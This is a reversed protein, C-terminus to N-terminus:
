GCCRGNVRWSRVLKEGCFAGGEGGGRRVWAREVRVGMTEWRGGRGGRGERRLLREGHIEGKLNQRKLDGDGKRREVDGCVQLTFLGDRWVFISVITPAVAIAVMDALDYQIAVRALFQLKIAPDTYVNDLPNTKGM